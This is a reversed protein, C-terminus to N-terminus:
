KTTYITVKYMRLTDAGGQILKRFTPKRKDRVQQDIPELARITTSLPSTKVVCVLPRGMCVGAKFYSIHSAIRKARKLGALTDTASLAELPFTVM